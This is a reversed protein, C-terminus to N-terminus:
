RRSRRRGTRCPRRPGAGCRRPQQDLQVARRVLAAQAGVGDEADGQGDALAAGHRGAQREVLVDAADRGADQRHRHHVDDVAAGVGVIRDVDLLEHDQRGARLGEGFRRRMPASIKWARFFASFSAPWLVLTPSSPPKAGLRPRPRPPASGEDDLRALRGAILGALVEVEAEVDGRGLEELVALVDHGALALGEVRVAHDVVQGVQDLAERDDRDLVAAGLVIEVAPLQQGFAQAVLDLQDAVVQEDGIGARRATPM